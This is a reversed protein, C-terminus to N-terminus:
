TLYSHLILSSSEVSVIHEIVSPSGPRDFLVMLFRFCFFIILEAGTSWAVSSLELGRHRCMKNFRNIRFFHDSISIQCLMLSPLEVYVYM